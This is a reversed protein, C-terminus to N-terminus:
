LLKMKKSSPKKGTPKEGHAQQQKRMIKDFKIQQESTLIKRIKENDEAYIKDIEAHAKAIIERQEDIKARSDRLINRMYVKQQESLRMESEWNIREHNYKNLRRLDKYENEQMQRIEKGHDVKTSIGAAWVATSICLAPLVFLISKSIKM